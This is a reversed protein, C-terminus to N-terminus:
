TSSKPRIDEETDRNRDMWWEFNEKINFDNGSNLCVILGEGSEIVREVTDTNVMTRAERSPVRPTEAIVQTVTIWSM